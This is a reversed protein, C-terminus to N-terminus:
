EERKKKKKQNILTVYLNNVFHTLLKTTDLFLGYFQFFNRKGTM